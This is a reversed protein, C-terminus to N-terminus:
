IGLAANIQKINYYNGKRCLDVVKPYGSFSLMIFYQSSKDRVIMVKYVWFLVEVLSILSAGAFLGLTGGLM